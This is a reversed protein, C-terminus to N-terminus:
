GNSDDLNRRKALASLSDRLNDSRSSNILKFEMDDYRKEGDVIEQKLRAIEDSQKKANELAKDLSDKLIDKSEEDAYLALLKSRSEFAIAEAEDKAKEAAAAEANRQEVLAKMSTNETELQQCRQLTGEARLAQCEAIKAEKAEVESQLDKELVAIRGKLKANEVTAPKMKEVKTQLIEIEDQATTLKTKTEDLLGQASTTAQKETALAKQGSVVAAQSTELQKLLGSKEEELRSVEAQSATLQQQVANLEHMSEKVKTLEVQHAAEIEELKQEMETIQKARETEAERLQARLKSNHDLIQRMGGSVPSPAKKADDESMQM